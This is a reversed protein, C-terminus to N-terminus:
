QSHKVCLHDMKQEEQNTQLQQFFKEDKILGEDSKNSRLSSSSCSSSFSVSDDDNEDDETISGQIKSTKSSSNM